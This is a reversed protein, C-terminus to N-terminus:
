WPEKRYFTVFADGDVMLMPDGTKPHNRRELTYTVSKGSSSRATLSTATASWRGNDSTQSAAGGYPNSSSTEGYYEYTGDGNLTFCINSMRGGGQAQVNAQYCWKGVLDRPNAGGARADNGRTNAATGAEKVEEPTLRTYTVKRGEVWVTLVDAALKYPFEMEGEDNSVIISSGVVAYDYDEGNITIRSGRKFEILAESSKWHGLLKAEPKAKATGQAAVSLAALVVVACALLARVPFVRSM